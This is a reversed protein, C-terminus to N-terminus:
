SYLQKPHTLKLFHNCQENNVLSMYHWPKVIHPTFPRNLIALPKGYKRTNSICAQNFNYLIHYTRLTIYIFQRHGTKIDTYIITFVAPVTTRYIEYKACKTINITTLLAQCGYSTSKVIALMFDKTCNEM